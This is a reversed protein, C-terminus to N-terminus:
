VTKKRRIEDQDRRRKHLSKIKYQLALFSKTFPSVERVTRGFPSARVPVSLAFRQRYLSVIFSMIMFAIDFPSDVNM